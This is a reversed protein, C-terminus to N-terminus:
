YAHTKPTDNSIKKTLNPCREFLIFPNHHFSTWYAVLGGRSLLFRNVREDYDPNCFFHGAGSKQLTRKRYLQRDVSHALVLISLDLVSLITIATQTNNM